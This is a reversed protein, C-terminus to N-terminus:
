GTPEYFDAIHQTFHGYRSEIRARQREKRIEEQCTQCDRRPGPICHKPNETRVCRGCDTCYTVPTDDLKRQEWCYEHHLLGWDEDHPKIDFLTEQTM